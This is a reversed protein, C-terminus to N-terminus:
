ATGLVEGFGLEAKIYPNENKLFQSSLFHQLEKKDSAVSWNNQEEVSRFIRLIPTEKFFEQGLKKSLEKYFSIAVPYFQSVNWAANFRKLVTPNLIGGSKATAGELGNDIALFRKDHKRLEECFCIGAIGLGVVIYDVNGM